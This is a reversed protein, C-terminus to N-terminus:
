LQCVPVCQMTCVQAEPNHRCASACENFSGQMAQCAWADVGVCENHISSREGWKALCLSAQDANSSIQVIVHDVFSALEPAEAKIATFHVILSEKKDESYNKKISALARKFKLSSFVPRRVVTSPKITPTSADVEYTNINTLRSKYVWWREGSATELKYWGDSYESIAFSTGPRVISMRAWEEMCPMSRMYVASKPEVTGRMTVRPMYCWGASASQKLVIVWALAIMVVLASIWWYRLKMIHYISSLFSKRWQSRLSAIWLLCNRFSYIAEYRAIVSM